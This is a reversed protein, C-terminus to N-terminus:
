APHVLAVAVNADREAADLDRFALSRDVNVIRGARRDAVDALTKGLETLGPDVAVGRRTAAVVALHVSGPATFDGLLHAEHREPFVDLRFEHATFHGTAAGDNGGVALM